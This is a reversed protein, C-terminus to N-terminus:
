DRMRNCDNYKNLLLLLEIDNVCNYVNGVIALVKMLM